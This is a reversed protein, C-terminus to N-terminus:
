NIFLKSNLSFSMFFGYVLMYCNCKIWQLEACLDRKSSIYNIFDNEGEISSVNLILCKACLILEKLMSQTAFKLCRKSNTQDEFVMTGGLKSCINERLIMSLFINTKLAHRRTDIVNVSRSIDNLLSVSVYM